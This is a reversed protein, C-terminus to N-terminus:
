NLIPKVNNSEVANKNQQNKKSFKKLKKDFDILSKALNDISKRLNDYNFSTKM